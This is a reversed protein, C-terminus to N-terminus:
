CSGPRPHLWFADWRGALDNSSLLESPWGTNGHILGIIGKERLARRIRKAQRYCVGIKEGAEKLIIKGIEMSKMLHLRQLQRQSMLIKEAEM